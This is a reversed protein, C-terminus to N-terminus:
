KDDYDEVRKSNTQRKIRDMRRIKESPTLLGWPTYKNRAYGLKGAVKAGLNLVGRINDELHLKQKTTARKELDSLKM